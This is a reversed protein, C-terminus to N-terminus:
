GSPATLFKQLEGALSALDRHMFKGTMKLNGQVGHASIEVTQCPLSQQRPRMAAGDGAPARRRAARRLTFAPARLTGFYLADCPRGM